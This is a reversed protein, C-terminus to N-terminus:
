QAENKKDESLPLIISVTTGKGPESDIEVKGSHRQVIGHVIPLGLGIGSVGEKTTFFHSSFM